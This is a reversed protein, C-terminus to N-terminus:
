AGKLVSLTGDIAVKLLQEDDKEPMNIPVPSATHIIFDVGECAQIVSEENTLDVEILELKSFLEEGYGERLPKM